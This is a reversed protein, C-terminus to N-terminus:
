LNLNNKRTSEARPVTVILTSLLSIAPRITSFVADMIDSVSYVCM